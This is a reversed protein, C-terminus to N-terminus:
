TCSAVAVAVLVCIQHPTRPFDLKLCRQAAMCSVIKPHGEILFFFIRPHGAGVLQYGCRLQWRGGLHAAARVGQEPM